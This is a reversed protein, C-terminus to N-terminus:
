IFSPKYKTVLKGGGYFYSKGDKPHQQHADENLPLKTSFHM